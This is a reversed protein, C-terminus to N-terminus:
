NITEFVFLDINFYKLFLDHLDKLFLIDREKDTETEQCYAISVCWIASTSIKKLYNNNNLCEERLLRQYIKLHSYSAGMREYKKILQRISDSMLLQLHNKM